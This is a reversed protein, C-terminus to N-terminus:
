RYVSPYLSPGASRWAPPYCIVSRVYHVCYVFDTVPRKQSGVKRWHNRSTGEGRLRDREIGEGSQKGTSKTQKGTSNILEDSRPTFPFEEKGRRVPM